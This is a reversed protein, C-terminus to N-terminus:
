IVGSPLVPWGYGGNGGQWPTKLEAERQLAPVVRGRGEEWKELVDCYLIYLLVWLTEDCHPGSTLATPHGAPRHSGEAWRPCLTSSWLLYTKYFLKM